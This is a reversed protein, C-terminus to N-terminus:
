RAEVANAEVVSPNARSSIPQPIESAKTVAHEALLEEVHSKSGAPIHLIGVRLFPLWSHNHLELVQPNEGDFRYSDISEWKLLGWFHWIGRTTVLLRGSALYGYGAANSACVVIIAAVQLSSRAKWVYCVLFVCLVIACIVYYFRQPHRGCDLIIDGRNKVESFKAGFYGSAIVLWIMALVFWSFDGFNSFKNPFIRALSAFLEQMGVVLLFCTFGLSGVLITDVNNFGFTPAKM